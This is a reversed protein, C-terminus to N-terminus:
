IHVTQVIESKKDSQASHVPLSVRSRSCFKGCSGAGDGDGTGARLVLFCEVKDLAEEAAFRTRPLMLSVMEGLRSAEAEVEAM